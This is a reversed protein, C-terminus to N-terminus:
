EPTVKYEKGSQTKFHLKGELEYSEIVSDKVPEPDPPDPPVIVGQSLLWAYITTNGLEARPTLSFVMDWFSSNHGGPLPTWKPAPNAGADNMGNVPRLGDSPPVTTDNQGHIAWVPTGYSATTKAMKYDGEGSVPVIGSVLQADGHSNYSADWSGDGGMSLGTVFVRGDGPYKARVYRLFKIITPNDPNGKWGTYNTSQQPCLLIFGKLHDLGALKLLKPTGQDDLKNPDTGREGSGHLFILVPANLGVAPDIYELYQSVGSESVSTKILTKM